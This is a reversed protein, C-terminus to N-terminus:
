HGSHGRASRPAGLQALTVATLPDHHARRDCRRGRRLPDGVDAPSEPRPTLDLGFVCRRARGRVLRHGEGLPEQLASRMFLGLLTAAVLIALPAGIFWSLREQITVRFVLEELLTLILAAALLGPVASARTNIHHLLAPYFGFAEAIALPVFQVLLVGGALYWVKGLDELFGWKLGAESWPRGHRMPGSFTYVIAVVYGIVFLSKDKHSPLSLVMTLVLVGLVILVGLLAKRDHPTSERVRQRTPEVGGTTVLRRRMDRADVRGGVRVDPNKRVRLRPTRQYDSM